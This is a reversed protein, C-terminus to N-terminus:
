QVKELKTNEFGRAFKTTTKFNSSFDFMVSTKLFM